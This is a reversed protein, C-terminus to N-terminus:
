SVAEAMASINRQARMVEASNIDQLISSVNYLALSVQGWTKEKMTPPLLERLKEIDKIDHITEFVGERAGEFHEIYDLLELASQVQSREREAIALRDGVKLTEMSIHDFHKKMADVSTNIDDLKIGHAKMESRLAGLFQYSIM